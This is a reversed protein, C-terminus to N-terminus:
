IKLACVFRCDDHNEGWRHVGITLLYLLSHLPSSVTTEEMVWRTCPWFIRPHLERQVLLGMLLQLSAQSPLATTYKLTHILTHLEKDPMDRRLGSRADQTSRLYAAGIEKHPLKMCTHVHNDLVSIAAAAAVVLNADSVHILTSM